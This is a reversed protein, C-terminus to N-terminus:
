VAARGKETAEHRVKYRDQYDAQWDPGGYEYCLSCLKKWGKRVPRVGCCECIPRSKAWAKANAIMQERHDAYYAKRKIDNVVHACESHYKYGKGTLIPQLCHQCIRIQPM